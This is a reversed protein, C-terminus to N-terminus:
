CSCIYLLIMDLSNSASVIKERCNIRPLNRVPTVTSPIRTLKVPGQPLPVPKTVDSQVPQEGVATERAASSRSRDSHDLEVPSEVPVRTGSTSHGVISPMSGSLQVGVSTASRSIDADRRSAVDSSTLKSHRGLTHIRGGPDDASNGTAHGASSTGIEHQHQRHRRRGLTSTESSKAMYLPNLPESTDDHTRDYVRNKDVNNSEDKDM